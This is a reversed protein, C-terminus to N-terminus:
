AVEDATCLEELREIRYATKPHSAELKESLTQQDSIQMDYLVYLASILAEGYGLDYAFKDAKYETKRSNSAVLIVLAQLFYKLALNLITKLFGFFSGIFTKQSIVEILALLKILAIIIYMYVSSAITVFMSVQGDGNSIHGFEHAIVAELQEDDFVSLAGRTIGITHKGIACANISPTDIIYLKVKNDVNSFSCAREKVSDFLPLLREKETYTAIHRMDEFLRMVWESVDSLTLGVIGLFIIGTIVNGIVSFEWNFWFLYYNVLLLLILRPRVAFIRLPNATTGSVKKCSFDSKYSKKDCKHAEIYEALFFFSTTFISGILVCLPITLVSRSLYIKFIELIKGQKINVYVFYFINHMNTLEIQWGKAQHIGTALGALLVSPMLMFLLSIKSLSYRNHIDKDAQSTLIVLFFIALAGLFAPWMVILMAFLLISFVTILNKM